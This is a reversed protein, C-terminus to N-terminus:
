KMFLMRNKFATEQSSVQYWLAKNATIYIPTRELLCPAKGKRNIMTNMGEFVSKAMEANYESLIFENAMAIRASLCNEFMFNSASENSTVINGWFRAVDHLPRMVWSKGGNSAGMLYMLNKKPQKKDFWIITDYLFDWMNLGQHDCWKTYWYISEEVSLYNNRDNYKDCAIDRLKSSLEGFELRLIESRVTDVATRYLYELVSRSIFRHWKDKTETTAMKDETVLRGLNPLDTPNYKTILDKVFYLMEENTSRKIAREKRKEEM